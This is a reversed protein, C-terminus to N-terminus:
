MKEFRARQVESMDVEEIMSEVAIRLKCYMHAGGITKEFEVEKEQSAGISERYAVRMKGLTANIGYELQIRDRLVELHLEGLGSVLLQGTEEDEKVHLSPDERSLAFLINELEQKERSLEAEISCFFVPPPMNVGSLQVKSVSQEDLITDGSRISKCGVLAGIDGTKIQDLIQMEDARVRMLSQVREVDGTNSNKIRQRNKLMGSYVRFFTVLGKEKDNVVKFALACLDSSSNKASDIEIQEGEEIGFTRTTSPSPLYKIVGDILPQVGKNKLASGCFLAVSNHSAIAERIAQEILEQKIEWPEAGSLYLEAIEDNHESLQEILRQRYEMARDFLHHEKDIDQMDVYQGMDDKYEFHMMSPLDILGHLGNSDDSPVNVLLPEVKLRRRISETTTEILSGTRDLKNIFGLRPINFRNAQMWVTESQTEVGQM